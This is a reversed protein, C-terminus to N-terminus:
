IFGDRDGESVEHERVTTVGPLEAPPNTDGGMEWSPPPHGSGLEVVASRRDRADLEVKGGGFKGSTRKSNWSSSFTGQNGGLEVKGGSFPSKPRPLPKENGGNYQYQQTIAIQNQQFHRRRRYWIAYTVLCASLLLVAAVSAVIGGITGGAVHSSKASPSATTTPTTPTAPSATVTTTIPGAQSGEMVLAYAQAPTTQATFIQIGTDSASGFSTVTITQFLTLDTYCTGGYAPRTAIMSATSTPLALSFGTPCCAMYGSPTNSLQLQSYGLPCALPSIAPLITTAASQSLYSSVFQSPYCANFTTTSVPNPFNMWIEDALRGVMTMQTETCTAPPTFTTSIAFIVQSATTQSQAWVSPLQAPILLVLTTLRKMLTFNWM